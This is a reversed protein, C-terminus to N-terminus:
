LFIIKNNNITYNTQYFAKFFKKLLKLDNLSILEYSSHMALMTLGIDISNISLHRLIAALQTSGTAYDNRSTYYSYKINNKQCIHKIITSSISTTPSSLEKTIMIGSNLPPTNTHDALEKHNPHNAHTNDANIIISNSLIDIYDLNLNTCIQKIINILFDSDAGDITNSGIEESNLVCLMDLDKSQSQLFADLASYTCTINDIRPSALFENNIIQPLENNYLFLDYEFLQGKIKLNKTIIKNISNNVKLSFIPNLDIQTNLDLNSNAKDNQHIAISPIIAISKKLDIIKKHYKNNEKIIIRGAISLPRDMFSYNLIGGYPVINLKHYNNTFYESNPKIMFAPTDGHTCVIKIKSPNYNNIKFAIISADNRIIFYKGKTLKKINENIEIFNAKILRKKIENINTFICSSNSIFDIINKENKM